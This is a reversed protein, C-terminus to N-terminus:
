TIFLCLIDSILLDSFYYLGYQAHVLMCNHLTIGIVSAYNSSKILCVSCHFFKLQASKLNYYSRLNSWLMTYRIYYSQQYTLVTYHPKKVNMHGHM